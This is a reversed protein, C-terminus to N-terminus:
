LDDQLEFGDSKLSTVEGSVYVTSGELYEALIAGTSPYELRSEYNANYNICLITLIIYIIFLTFISKFCFIQYNDFKVFFLKTKIL